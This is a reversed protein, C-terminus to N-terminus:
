TTNKQNIEKFHPKVVSSYVCLVKNCVLLSEVLCGSGEWCGSFSWLPAQPDCRETCPPPPTVRIHVGCSCHSICFFFFVSLFAPHLGLEDGFFTACFHVADLCVNQMWCTGTSSMNHVFSFYCNVGLVHQFLVALVKFLMVCHWKFSPGSSGTDKNRRCGNSQSIDHTSVDGDQLFARGRFDTRDDCWRLSHPFKHTM